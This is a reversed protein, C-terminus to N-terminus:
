TWGRNEQRQKKNREARRDGSISSFISNYRGDAYTGPYGWSIGMFVPLSDTEISFRSPYNAFSLNTIFNEVNRSPPPYIRPHHRVNAVREYRHEILFCNRPASHYLRRFLRASIPRRYSVSHAADILLLQMGAMRRSNDVPTLQNRIVPFPRVTSNM